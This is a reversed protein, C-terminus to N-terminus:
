EEETLRSAHVQGAEGAREVESSGDMLEKLPEVIAMGREYSTIVVESGQSLARRSLNKAAESRRAGGMTFVIEGVGNAPIEVTVRALTGQLRFDEKKMAKSGQRLWTIFAAIVSAGAVGAIVAPIIAFFWPWKASNTLIYGAGGFWTLFAVVATTSMYPMLPHLAKLLPSEPAGKVEQLEGTHHVDAGKLVPTDLGKLMPTDLGKLMPMDGGKLMPVDGGGDGQGGVAGLITTILTFLAGFYFLGLFVSEM